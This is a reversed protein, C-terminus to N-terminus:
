KVGGSQGLGILWGLIPGLNVVGSRRKEVYEKCYQNIWRHMVLMCAKANERVMQSGICNALEEYKDRPLLGTKYEDHYRQLLDFDQLERRFGVLRSALSGPVNPLAAIGYIGKLADIGNQLDDQSLAHDMYYEVLTRFFAQGELTEDENWTPIFV